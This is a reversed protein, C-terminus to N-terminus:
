QHFLAENMWENQRGNNQTTDLRSSRDDFDYQCIRKAGADYNEWFLAANQFEM